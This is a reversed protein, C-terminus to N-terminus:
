NRSRSRHIEGQLADYRALLLSVPGLHLFLLVRHIFVRTFFVIFTSIRKNAAEKTPKVAM